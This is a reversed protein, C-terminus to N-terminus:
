EPQKTSPLFCLCQLVKEIWTKEKKQSSPPPPLPPFSISEVASPLECWEEEEELKKQEM